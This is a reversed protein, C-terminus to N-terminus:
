AASPSMLSLLLLSGPGFFGTSSPWFGSETVGGLVSAPLTRANLYGNEKALLRIYSPPHDRSTVIRSSGSELDMAPTFLRSVAPPTRSSFQCVAPSPDNINYPSARIVATSPSAFLKPASTFFFSRHYKGAPM